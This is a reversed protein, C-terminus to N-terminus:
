VGAHETENEAALPVDALDCETMEPVLLSAPKDNDAVVEELLASASAQAAKAVRNIHKIALAAGKFTRRANFNKKVAPLIDVTSETTLWPHQLAQRATARQTPDLVLLKRIFDKGTDLTEM